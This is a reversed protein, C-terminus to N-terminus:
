RLAVDTIRCPNPVNSNVRIDNYEAKTIYDIFFGFSAYGNDIQGFKRNTEDKSKWWCDDRFPNFLHNLEREDHIDNNVTTGYLYSIIMKISGIINNLLGEMINDNNINITNRQDDDLLNYVDTFLSGVTQIVQL